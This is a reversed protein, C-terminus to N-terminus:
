VFTAGFTDRSLNVFTLISNILEVREAVAMTSLGTGYPQGADIRLSMQRHTTVRLSVNVGHHVLQVFGNLSPGLETAASLEVFILCDAIDVLAVADEVLLDGPEEVRIRLLEFRTEFTPCSSTM